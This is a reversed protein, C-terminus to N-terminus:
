ALYNYAPTESDEKRELYERELLAEIKRKIQNPDPRFRTSLQAIVETMLKQHTM